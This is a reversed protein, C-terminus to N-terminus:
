GYQTFEKTFQSYRYNSHDGSVEGISPQLNNLDGEIENFKSYKKCEKRGGNRWCKLYRESNEAPM